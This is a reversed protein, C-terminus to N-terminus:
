IHNFQLFITAPCNPSAQNKIDEETFLGKKNLLDEVTKITLDHIRNDLIPSNCAWGWLFEKGIVSDLVYAKNKSPLIVQVNSEVRSPHYVTKHTLKKANGPFIRDTKVSGNGARTTLFLSIYSETSTKIAIQVQDGSFLSSNTRVLKMGSERFSLVDWELGLIPKDKEITRALEAWKAQHPYISNLKHFLARIRNIKKEQYYHHLLRFLNDLDASSFRKKGLLEIWNKQFDYRSRVAAIHRRDRLSFFESLTRQLNEFTTRPSKHKLLSYSIVSDPQIRTVSGDPNLILMSSNSLAKLQDGHKLLTGKSVGKWGHSDGTNIQITGIIGVIIAPQDAFIASQFGFYILVILLSNIRQKLIVRM